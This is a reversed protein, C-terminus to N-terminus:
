LGFYPATLKCKHTGHYVSQHHCGVIQLQVIRCVSQGRLSLVKWLINSHLNTLLMSNWCICVYETTSTATQSCVHRRPVSTRCIHYPGYYVSDAKFVTMLQWATMCM